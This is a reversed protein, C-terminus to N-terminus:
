KLLEEGGEGERSLAKEGGRGGGGRCSAILGVFLRNAYGVLFRNAYACM